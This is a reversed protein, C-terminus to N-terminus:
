SARPKIFTHPRRPRRTRRPPPAAHTPTAAPPRPPPPATARPAPSPTIPPTAPLGLAPCSGAKHLPHRRFRSFDSQSLVYSLKQIFYWRFQFSTHTFLVFQVSKTLQTGVLQGKIFQKLNTCKERQKQTLGKGSFEKYKQVLVYTLPYTWGEPMSYYLIPM